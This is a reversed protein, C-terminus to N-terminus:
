QGATEIGFGPVAFAEVRRTVQRIGLLGLFRMPVTTEGALYLATAGDAGPVLYLAQLTVHGGSYAQLRETAVPVADDGLTVQQGVFFAGWALHKAADQVALDAADQARVQAVAVAGLDYVMGIMLVLVPLIFLTEVLTTQGQQDRVLRAM